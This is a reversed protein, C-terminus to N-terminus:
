AHVGSNRARTGTTVDKNRRGDTLFVACIHAALRANVAHTTMEAKIADQLTTIEVALEEQMRTPEKLERAKTEVEPNSM